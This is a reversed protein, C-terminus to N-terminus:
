LNCIILLYRYRDISPSMHLMSIDHSGYSRLRICVCHVPPTLLTTRLVTCPVYQVGYLVANRKGGKKSFGYAACIYKGSPIPIIATLASSCKTCYYGFFFIWAILSPVSLRGPLFVFNSFKAISFFLNNFIDTSWWFNCVSDNRCSLSAAFLSPIIKRAWSSLIFISSSITLICLSPSSM